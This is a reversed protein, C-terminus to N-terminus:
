NKLRNGIELDLGKSVDGNTGLKGNFVKVLDFDLMDWFVQNTKIPKHISGDTRCRGPPNEKGSRASSGLGKKNIKKGKDLDEHFNGAAELIGEQADEKKGDEEITQSM